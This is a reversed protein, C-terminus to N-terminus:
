VVSDLAYYSREFYVSQWDQHYNSIALM